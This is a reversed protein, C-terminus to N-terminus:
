EGPAVAPEPLFEAAPLKGDKLLMAMQRGVTIDTSMQGYATKMHKVMPLALEVLEQIQDTSLKDIETEGTYDSGTKEKYWTKFGASGMWDDFKAPSSLHGGIWERATVGTIAQQLEGRLVSHMKRGGLTLTAHLVGTAKQEDTLAGVDAAGYATVIAAQQDASLKDFAGTLAQQGSAGIKDYLGKLEAPGSFSRNQNDALWKQADDLKDPAFGDSLAVRMDTMASFLAKTEKKEKVQAEWGSPKDTELKAIATDTSKSWSTFWSRADRKAGTPSFYQEYDAMRKVPIRGSGLEAKWRSEVKTGGPHGWYLRKGGKFGLDIVNEGIYGIKVGLPSVSRNHFYGTTGGASEGTADKWPTIDQENAGLTYHRAVELGYAIKPEPNGAVFDTWTKDKNAPDAKWGDYKALYDSAKTKNADDKAFLANFRFEGVGEGFERKYYKSLGYLRLMNRAHACETTYKSGNGTFPDAIADSPKVGEKLEWSTQGGAAEATSVTWFDGNVAEPASEGTASNYSPFRISSSSSTYENVADVTAMNFRVMKKLDAPLDKYLTEQIKGDAGVYEVRDNDDVKADANADVFVMGNRLLLQQQTRELTTGGELGFGSPADLSLEGRAAAKVEGAFGADKLAKDMESAPIDAIVAMLIKQQSAGPLLRALALADVDRKGDADADGAVARMMEGYTKIEQGAFSPDAAVQQRLKDPLPTDLKVGEGLIGAKKFRAIMSGALADKFQGEGTWNAANYEAGTEYRRYMKADAAPPTTPTTPGTPTTTTGTPTTPQSPLPNAVQLFDALAQRGAPTFAAAHDNLLGILVEKEGPQMDGLDYAGKVLAIVEADSVKGDQMASDALDKVNSTGDWRGVLTSLWGSYESEKVGQLQHLLQSAALDPRPGSTTPTRSTAPATETASETPTAVPEDDRPQLSASGPGSTSTVGSM